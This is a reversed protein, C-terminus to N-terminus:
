DEKASQAEAARLFTELRENFVTGARQATHGFGQVVICLMKVRQNEVSSKGQVFM